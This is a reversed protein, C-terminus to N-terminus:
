AVGMVVQPEYVRAFLQLFFLTDKSPRVLNNKLEFIRSTKKDFFPTSDNM